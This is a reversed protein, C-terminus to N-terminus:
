GVIEVSFPDALLSPSSYCKYCGSALTDSEGLTGGSGIEGSAGQNEAVM